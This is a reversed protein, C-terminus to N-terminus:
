FTTVRKSKVIAGPLGAIRVELFNGVMACDVTFLRTNNGTIPGVAYYVDKDQSVTVVLESSMIDTARIVMIIAKMCNYKTTDVRIITTSASTNLNVPRENGVDYFEINVWTRGVGDWYQWAALGYGADLVLVIEYGEYQTTVLKSDREANTAFVGRFKDSMYDIKKKMEDSLFEIGEMQKILELLYNPDKLQNIDEYLTKALEASAVRTFGGLWDNAISSDDIKYKISTLIEDIERGTYRMRYRTPNIDPM